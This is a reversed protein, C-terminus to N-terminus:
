RCESIVELDIPACIFDDGLESIHVKYFTRGKPTIKLNTIVGTYGMINQMYANYGLREKVRILDGVKM